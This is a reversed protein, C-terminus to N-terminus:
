ARTTKARRMLTASGSICPRRNADLVTGEVFVVSSGARLVRGEGFSPGIPLPALFSTKMEVTPLFDRVKAFAAVTFIVDLMAAAFGGQVNGFHNEFAPQPEFAVRVIGASLDVGEVTFPTLAACVPRPLTEILRVVESADIAM